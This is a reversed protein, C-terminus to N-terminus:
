VFKFIKGLGDRIKRTEKWHNKGSDIFSEPTSKDIENSFLSRFEKSAVYDTQLVFRVGNQYLELAEEHSTSVAVFPVDKNRDKLFRSLETNLDILSRCSVVLKAKSFNFEEWISSDMMDAYLPIINSEKKAEFHKIIEPDTDILLVKINKENYYAAIEYAIENYALLVIHDKLEYKYKKYIDNAARNRDM